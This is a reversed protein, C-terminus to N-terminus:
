GIVDCGVGLLRFFGMCIYELDLFRGPGTDEFTYTHIHLYRFM